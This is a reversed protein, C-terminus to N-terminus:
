NRDRPLSLKWYISISSWLSELGTWFLLLLLQSLPFKMKFDMSGPLLLLLHMKNPLAIEFCTQSHENSTTLPNKKWVIKKQHWEDDRNLCCFSAEEGWAKPVEWHDKEFFLKKKEFSSYLGKQLSHSWRKVDNGFFLDIQGEKKSSAKM